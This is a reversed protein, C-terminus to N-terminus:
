KVSLVIHFNNDFEIFKNCANLFSKKIQKDCKIRHTHLVRYMLTTNVIKALKTLLM